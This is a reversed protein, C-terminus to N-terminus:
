LNIGANRLFMLIHKNDQLTYSSRLAIGAKCVLLIVDTKRFTPNSPLLVYQILEIRIKALTFWKDLFQNRPQATNLTSM